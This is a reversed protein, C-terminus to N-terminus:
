ALTKTAAHRATEAESRRLYNPFLGAATCGRDQAFMTLVLSAAAAARPVNAWSPAFAAKEGLMEEIVVRYREAGDGVFLTKETLLALFAEPSTVQDSQIVEPVAASHYIGAYVEGKRADYLPCVPLVTWPFNAALLALSSFGVVPKGTALALGKVTSLGVRVSTFAGPGTTVGFGDLDSLCIGAFSMVQEVSESLRSSSPGPRNILVEALLRTGDVVAVSCVSTATDVLLLKM